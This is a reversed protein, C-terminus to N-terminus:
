VRFLLGHILAHKSNFRNHSNGTREGHAELEEIIKKLTSEKRQHEKFIDVNGGLIIQIIPEEGIIQHLNQDSVPIRISRIPYRSLCDVHPIKSGPVYVIEKEQQAMELQM